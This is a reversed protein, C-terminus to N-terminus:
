VTSLWHSETAAEHSCSGSSTSISRSMRSSRRDRLVWTGSDDRSSASRRSLANVCARMEALCILSRVWADNDLAPVFLLWKTEGMDTGFQLLGSSLVLPITTEAIDVLMGDVLVGDVLVGNVLVGLIREASLHPTVPKLTFPRYQVLKKRLM